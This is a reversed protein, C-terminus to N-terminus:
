TKIFKDKDLNILEDNSKISNLEALKIFKEDNYQFRIVKLNIQKINEIKEIILDSKLRNGINKSLKRYYFNIFLLINYFLNPFVYHATGSVLLIFLCNSLFSYM